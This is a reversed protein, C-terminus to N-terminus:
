VILHSTINLLLCYFCKNFTFIRILNKILYKFYVVKYLSKSRRHKGFIFIIYKRIVFKLLNALYICTYINIANFYNYKCLNNLILM